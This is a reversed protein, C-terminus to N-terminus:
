ARTHARAQDLEPAGDQGMSMSYRSSATALRREKDLVQWTLM